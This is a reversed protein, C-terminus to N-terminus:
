HPKSSQILYTILAEQFINENQDAFQGPPFDRNQLMHIFEDLSSRGYLNSTQDLNSTYEMLSTLRAQERSDTVGYVFSNLPILSRRVRSIINALTQNIVHEDEHLPQFAVLLSYDIVDLEKLFQTDLDVQHTFWSRQEDLCLTKGEFNLDKFVMIIQSGEPAAEVWRDLQCGKIDYREVIKEHPYFVSQM